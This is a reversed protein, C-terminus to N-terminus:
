LKFVSIAEEMKKANEALEITADNLKTVAEIQQVATAGVEESASATEESIASINQIADLTGAKANEIEKIGSSILNLNNVLKEVHQNIDTFAKVTRELANAQIDVMNEAQKVSSVTNKTKEQIIAIINEIKKSASLSQDALNRIETAVVGFGKGAEGARAAEISANLSLLNTQSAIENIVGVISGISNSQNELEIINQTILQTINATAKSTNNLEDMIVIGQGVISKTNGAINEIEHTSDYVTNIRDSLNTMQMLCQETDTAQQVVGGEIEEIAYSIDKSSSLFNETSSSVLAASETVIKGISEMQKILNRMGGIMSENERALLGFEDRRKTDFTVTLDGKTAKELSRISRNVAGKLSLSILLCTVVAVVVAFLVIIFTLGWIPKLDAVIISKPMFSCLMAGTDGVKSYVFLYEEGNYDAYIHGSLDEGEMAAKYYSLTTIDIDSTTASSVADVEKEKTDDTDFGSFISTKGGPAIFATWSGTGYNLEALTKDIIEQKIDVIIYVTTAFDAKRWLSIAFKTADFSGEADIKEQFFDHNSIWGLSKDSASLEKGVESELFEKYFSEKMTLQATSAGSGVSGLLYIHYIFDNINATNQMRKQIAQKSKTQDDTLKATNLDKNFYYDKAEEMSLIELAKDAVNEFGLALYTSKANITDKTSKESKNVIVDSAQNYSIIGLALILVIPIFFCIILKVSISGLGVSIKSNKQMDDSAHKKKLDRNGQKKKTSKLPFKSNKDSAVETVDILESASEHMFEAGEGVINANNLSAYENKETESINNDDEMLNTQKNVIKQIKKGKKFMNNHMKVGMYM